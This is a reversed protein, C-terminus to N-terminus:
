AVAGDRNTTRPAKAKTKKRSREKLENRVPSGEKQEDQEELSEKREEDAPQRRSLRKVEARLRDMEAEKDRLAQEYQQKERQWQERRVQWEETTIELVNDDEDEMTEPAEKREDNERRVVLSLEEILAQKVRPKCDACFWSGSPIASLPPNLCNYHCETTCDVRDCLLIHSQRDNQECITCGTEVKRKTRRLTSSSSRYVRSQQSSSHASSSSVSSSSSASASSDAFRTQRLRVDREDKEEKSESRTHRVRDVSDDREEKEETKDSAQAPFSSPSTAPPDREHYLVTFEKMTLRDKSMETCRKRAEEFLLVINDEGLIFELKCEMLSSPLIYPQQLFRRLVTDNQRLLKAVIFLITDESNDGMLEDKVQQCTLEITSDKSIRYFMILTAYARQLPISKPHEALAAFQAKFADLLTANPLDNLDNSPNTATFPATNRIVTDEAVVLEISGYVLTVTPAATSLSLSSM